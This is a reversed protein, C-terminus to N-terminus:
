AISETLGDAKFTVQVHADLAFPGKLTGHITVDHPDETRVYRYDEERLSEVFNGIPFVGSDGNGKPGWYDWDVNNWILLVHGKRAFRRAQDVLAQAKTHQKVTEFFNLSVKPSLALAVTRHFHRPKEAM